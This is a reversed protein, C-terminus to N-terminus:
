ETIVKKETLNDVIEVFVTYIILFVSLAIETIM